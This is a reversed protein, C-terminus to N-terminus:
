EQFFHSGGFLPASLPWLDMPALCEQNLESHQVWDLHSGATQTVFHACVTQDRRLLSLAPIFTIGVEVDAYALPNSPSVPEPCFLDITAGRPFREMSAGSTTNPRGESGDAFMISRQRCFWFVDKVAFLGDNTVSFPTFFPHTPDIESRHDVHIDPLFSPLWLLIGIVSLVASLINLSFALRGPTQFNSNAADTRSRESSQPSPVQRQSNQRYRQRSRRSM